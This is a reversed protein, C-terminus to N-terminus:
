PGNCPILLVFLECSQKYVFSNNWRSEFRQEDFQITRYEHRLESHSYLTFSLNTRIRLTLQRPKNSPM